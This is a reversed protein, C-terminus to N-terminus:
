RRIRNGLVFGLLGILAVGLFVHVGVLLLALDNRPLLRIGITGTTMALLSFIALDTPRRTVERVL